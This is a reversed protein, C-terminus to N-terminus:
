RKPNFWILIEKGACIPIKSYELMIRCLHIPPMVVLAFLVYFFIVGGLGFVCQIGRFVRQLAMDFGKAIAMPVEVFLWHLVQVFGNWIDKLTITRFFTVIAELISHILSMITLIGKVLHNWCGIAFMKLWVTFFEKLAWMTYTIMNPIHVTIIKWIFIGIHKIARPLHVTLGRWISVATRIVFKPFQYILYRGMRPIAVTVFHKGMRWSEKVAWKPIDYILAKPLYWVLGWFIQRPTILMLGINHMSAAHQSKFRRFGGKRLSPLFDVIERHGNDAALRLATQGDPACLAHDANCPPSYLLKVIPLYGKLAAIMLPTRLIQRFRTYGDPRTYLSKETSWSDVDAGMNLLMEVMRISGTDVAAALATRGINDRTNPGLIHPYTLFYLAVADDSGKHISQFFNLKVQSENIESNQDNNNDPLAPNTHVIYASPTASTTEGARDPPPCLINSTNGMSTFTSSQTGGSQGTGPPEYAPLPETGFTPYLDRADM